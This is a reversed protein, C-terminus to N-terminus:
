IIFVLISSVIRQNMEEIDPSELFDELEVGSERSVCAGM